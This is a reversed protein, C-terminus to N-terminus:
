DHRGRAADLRNTVEALTLARNSKLVDSCISKLQESVAGASGLYGTRALTCFVEHSIHQSDLEKERLYKGGKPGVFQLGDLQTLPVVYGHNSTSANRRVFKFYAAESNLRYGGDTADRPIQSLRDHEGWFKDDLHVEWGEGKPDLMKYQVLLVSNFTQNFIVLDAGLCTELPRRNATIVQVVQNGNRFTAVGSIDSHPIGMEPFSRADHEIVSDEHLRFDELPSEEGFLNVM